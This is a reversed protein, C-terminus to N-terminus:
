EGAKCFGVVPVVVEDTGATRADFDMDVADVEGGELVVLAIFGVEGAEKGDLDM